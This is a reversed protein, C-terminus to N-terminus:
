LPAEISNPTGLGFFYGSEGSVNEIEIEYSVVDLYENIVLNATKTVLQNLETVTKSTTKIEKLNAQGARAETTKEQQEIVQDIVRILKTQSVRPKSDLNWNGSSNLTYINDAIQITTQPPRSLYNTLCAQFQYSNFEKFSNSSELYNGYCIRSKHDQLFMQAKFDTYDLAKTRIGALLEEVSCNHFCEQFEVLAEDPTFTPRPSPRTTIVPSASLSPTRTTVPTNASPGSSGAVLIVSVLLVLNLVISFILSALLIKPQLLTNKIGPLPVDVAVPDINPATTM